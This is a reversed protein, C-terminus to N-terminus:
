KEKKKEVFRCFLIVKAHCYVRAIFFDSQLRFATQDPIKIRQLNPIGYIFSIISRCNFDNFITNLPCSLNLFMFICVKRVTQDQIKAETIVAFMSDHSCVTLDTVINIPWLKVNKKFFAFM